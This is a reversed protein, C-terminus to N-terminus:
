GSLASRVIRRTVLVLVLLTALPGISVVGAVSLGISVGPLVYGLALGLREWPLFGSDRAQGLLWALPLLLLTMDYGFFYPTMLPAAAAMAAVEARGGPRHRLALVVVAMAAVTSAAQAAYAALRPVGLGRLTAFVSQMQWLPSRGSDLAEPATNMTALFARWSESGLIVWSLAALGAVAVGGLLIARWRRAAVLGPLVALGLQPKCALVALAAGAGGPRRDLLLGVLAFLATTLFANQGNALNQVSAPALLCLLAVVPWSAPRYAALAVICATATVAIWALYSWAYPLLGLPLCLLLYPPPYLFHFYGREPSVGQAAAHRLTNWAGAPDGDLALSSAAHFAMFDLSPRADADPGVVRLLAVLLYFAPVMLLLGGYLWARGTTLWRAERLWDARAM